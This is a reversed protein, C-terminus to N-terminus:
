QGPEFGPDEAGSSYAIVVAIRVCAPTM